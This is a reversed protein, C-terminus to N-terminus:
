VKFSGLSGRTIVEDEIAKYLNQYNRRNEAFTGFLREYSPSDLGFKYNLLQVIEKILVPDNEIEDAPLYKM